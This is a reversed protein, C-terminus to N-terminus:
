TGKSWWDGEPKYWSSVSAWYGCGPLPVGARRCAKSLAVDSVGLESAIALVPRRWVLEYIEERTFEVHKYM